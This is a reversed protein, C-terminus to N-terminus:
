PIIECGNNFAPYDLADRPLVGERTLERITEVLADLERIMRRTSECVRDFWRRGWFMTRNAFLCRGGCVWKKACLTCPEGVLRSDRLSEPTSTQVEGVPSYSLEPAIPCADVRGSTMVAFSDRGSGCRIHPVPEGTVLTKMVPIFPVIGLVVGKELARGFDSILSTVGDDYSNLWEEAQWEDGLDDWFVDLQWHVHDFAPDRLALLHSVDECINGRRSFAMRAVLDGAFGKERLPSLNRIVADYTGEGRNADTVERGGDISIPITDLRSLYRPDFDDLLTGNTQLTFARAPIRDMVKYIFGTALLPEGGYFDIVTDPDMSIFHALEDLSYSIDLPIGDVNRTGGCYGCRLNCRETTFIHYQM